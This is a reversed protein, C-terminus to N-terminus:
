LSVTIAVARALVVAVIISVSRSLQTLAEQYSNKCRDAPIEIEVAVRSHPLSNTKVQLKAASM